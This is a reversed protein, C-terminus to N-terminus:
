NRYIKKYVGLGLKGEVPSILGEVDLTLRAVAFNFAMNILFGMHKPDIEEVMPNGVTMDIPDSIRSAIGEAYLKRAVFVATKQRIGEIEDKSDAIVLGDHEGPAENYSLDYCPSPILIHKERNSGIRGGIYSNGKQTVGESPEIGQIMLYSVRAHISRRVDGKVTRNALLEFDCLQDITLIDREAIM